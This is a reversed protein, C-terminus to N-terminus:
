SASITVKVTPYLRSTNAHRLGKLDREALAPLQGQGPGQAVRQVELGALHRTSGLDAVRDHQRRLWHVEGGQALLHAPQYLFAANRCLVQKV